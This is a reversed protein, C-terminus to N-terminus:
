APRPPKDYVDEMYLQSWSFNMVDTEWDIVDDFLVFKQVFNTFETSFDKLDLEKCVETPIGRSYTIYEGSKGIYKLIYGLTNGHKIDSLSIPEFDNRGFRKAFFTNSFVEQMKKQKTSYDKKKELNGPMEGDPIYMLAHFHLRNTKPAREFVGMYKWGRRVHFNALTKRLKTRFSEEDHLKDDYTVTVFHTWKNLYAKRRFRKMRAYLNHDKREIHEDIFTKYDKVNSTRLPVEKEIYSRQKTPSCHREKAEFYIEDFIRDNETIKDRFGGKRKKSYEFLIDALNSDDQNGIKNSPTCLLTAVHHSGDCYVKYKHAYTQEGVLFPLDGSSNLKVEKLESAFM